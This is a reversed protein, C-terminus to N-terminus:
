KNKDELQKITLNQGEVIATMLEGFREFEEPTKLILKDINNCELGKLFSRLKSEYEDM